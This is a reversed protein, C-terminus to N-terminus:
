RLYLYRYDSMLYALVVVWATAIGEPDEPAVEQYLFETVLEEDQDYWEYRPEEDNADTRVGAAGDLIGDFYHVDAWYACMKESLFSRYAVNGTREWVDRFLDWAAGVDDSEVGVRVGMLREHLEVLKRKIADAGADTAPSVTEDIGKFLRRQDDELLYFERLVIPCSTEAAHSEAVGLMVSTMDRARETVAESDIGGYMLRYRGTLADEEADGPSVAAYINVRRGWRYGTLAETKRALEEPTLLRRAGAGALAESRLTGPEAAVEARFWKSLAIEM